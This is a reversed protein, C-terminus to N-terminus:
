YARAVYAVSSEVAAPTAPVEGDAGALCRVSWGDANLRREGEAGLDAWTLRCFGSAESALIEEIGTVDRTMETQRSAADELMSRQIDPLLAAIAGSAGDLGIREKTGSDRRVCTVVGDELDRPGIEVRVPVGKIEWDTVRRGFGTHTDLDTEVRVGLGRLSDALQTCADATTERVALVVVQAPALSPPLRLGSDDGHVMILAGVVRTSVGWSTMWCLERDGSETSYGIDFARAFNQGLNHSTGMQLAKGDRMLAELTYTAEAGAFRETDTKRGLVPRIALVSEMLDAYVEHMRLTEEQAEDWSAHATHGEQWLFESTRLFLRPRLEWRVVNAWQNLLLPLDRHSQIWRSMADGIVTESTPRVAVPEGLESGGGHTVVALEPSFGEVHDAERELFSMPIFLPFYANKHGTARIRDDLERQIIEWIAYGWPRITMTGRVPGNEALEAKQILEQYWRPFDEAQPTLVSKAM